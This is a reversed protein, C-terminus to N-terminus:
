QRFKFYKDAFLHLHFGFDKIILILKIHYYHLKIRRMLLATPKECTKGSNYRLLIYIYHTTHSFSWDLKRGYRLWLLRILVIVFLRGNISM